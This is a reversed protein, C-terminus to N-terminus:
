VGELMHVRYDPIPYNLKAAHRFREKDDYIIGLLDGSHAGIIGLGGTEKCLKQVLSYMKYPLRGMNREISITAAQALKPIDANKIGSIVEPLIDDLNALKPLNSSNFALTDVVRKGEFTLIYFKIYQGIPLYISGRKYDFLTMERFIISDTPEIRIFEEVAEEVKYEMKLLKLLSIYVGCLDATSSAFGKGEPISSKISIDLQGDLWDYGWRKLLNSMLISSKSYNYRNIPNKSEYVKVKTFINVPFSLLMDVGNINGQILEGCSGPCIAYAEM